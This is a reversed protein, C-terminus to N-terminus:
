LLLLVLIVGRVAATRVASVRPDNTSPSPLGRPSAEGREAGQGPGHM